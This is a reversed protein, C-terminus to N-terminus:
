DVVGNALNTYEYGKTPHIPLNEPKNLVLIDEDEYVINLPMEVSPVNESSEEDVFVTELIDNEKLKKNVFEWVGNVTILSEAKKLSKICTPTYEHELLFTEITKGVDKETINYRFIRKM